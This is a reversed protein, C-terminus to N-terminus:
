KEESMEYRGFHSFHYLIYIEAVGSLAIKLGKYIM